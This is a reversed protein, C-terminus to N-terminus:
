VMRKIKEVMKSKESRESELDKLLRPNEPEIDKIQNQRHLKLMDNMEDVLKFREELSAYDQKLNEHDEKLTEYKIGFLEEQDSMSSSASLVKKKGSIHCLDSPKGTM